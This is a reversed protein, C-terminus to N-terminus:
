SMIFLCAEQAAELDDMIKISLETIFPHRLLDTDTTVVVFPIRLAVAYGLEMLSGTMQRDPIYMMNCLVVGSKQIDRLDRWVFNWGPINSGFGGKNISLLDKGRLPDLAKVGRDEFWQVADIRWQWTIEEHTIPGALYVCDRMLEEKFSLYYTSM